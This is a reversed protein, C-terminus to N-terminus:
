GKVLRLPPPSVIRFIRKGDREDWRIEHGMHRLYHFHDYARHPNWGTVEFLEAITVGRTRRLLSVIQEEEEEIDRKKGALARRDSRQVFWAVEARGKATIFWGVLDGAANETGLYRDTVIREELLGHKVLYRIDRDVTMIDVFDDRLPKLSGYLGGAATALVIRKQETLRYDRPM